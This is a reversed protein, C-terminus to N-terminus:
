ECLDGGVVIGAAVFEDSDAGTQRAGDDPGGETFELVDGAEHVLTGIARQEKGERRARGRGPRAAACRPRRRWRAPRGGRSRGCGAASGRRAGSAPCCRGAHGDRVGVLLARESGDGRGPLPGRGKGSRQVVARRGAGAPLQPAQRSGPSPTRAPGARRAALYIGEMGTSPRDLENRLGGWRWSVASVPGGTRLGADAFPEPAPLAGLCCRPGRGPRRM